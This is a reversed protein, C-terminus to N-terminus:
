FKKKYAELLTKNFENCPKCNERDCTAMIHQEDSVWMMGCITTGKYVRPKQNISNLIDEFDKLSIKEFLIPKNEPCESFHRIQGFIGINGLEQSCRNCKM